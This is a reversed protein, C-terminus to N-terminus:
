QPVMDRVRVETVSLFDVPWNLMAAVPQGSALGAAARIPGAHTVVVAPAGSVRPPLDNIFEQTRRVVVAFSEGSPPSNNAPDQWFAGADIEDWRKGEWAGFNQERLLDSAILPGATACFARLATATEQARKLSSCYWRADKPLKAAAASIAGDDTLDASPDSWGAIQGAGDQVPAHRVWWTSIELRDM